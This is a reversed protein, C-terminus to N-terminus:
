PRPLPPAPSAPSLAPVNWQALWRGIMMLEFGTFGLDSKRVMRVETPSELTVETITNGALPAIAALCRFVRLRVLGRAPSKAADAETTKAPARFSPAFPPLMQGLMQWQGLREQTIEWDYYLLNTRGTIQSTLEGPLSNTLPLPPFMGGLLFEGSTDNTAKLYPVIVNIKKWNIENRNTEFVFEGWDNKELVPNFTRPLETALAKLHKKASDTKIAFATHMPTGSQAWIFFQGALPNFSLAKIEAPFRIFSGLQQGATFSVIPDRILGLPITMPKPNAAVPKSYVATMETRVGGNKGSLALEVKPFIFPLTKIPLWQELLPGDAKVQLWDGALVKAPRGEKEILRLWDDQLPLKEQGVGVLVWDKARIFRIYNPKFERRKIEWGTFHEGQITRPESGAWNAALKAWNTDWLGARADDLRIALVIEGPMNTKRRVELLTEFTILDNLLPAMWETNLSNTQGDQALWLGPVHPLTQLIDKRLQVTAPLNWAAKLKAANTDASLGAAGVFHWRALLDPASHGFAVPVIGWGLAAIVSGFIFKVLGMCPATM